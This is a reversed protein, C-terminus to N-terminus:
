DGQPFGQQMLEILALQESPAIFDDHGEIQTNNFSIRGLERTSMNQVAATNVAPIDDIGEGRAGHCEACYTAYLSLAADLTHATDDDTPVVAISPLADDNTAETPAVAIDPLSDSGSEATPVIAISQPMTPDSQPMTDTTPPAATPVQTPEVIIVPMGAAAEALAYTDALALEDESVMGLEAVRVAVDDWSAYKIITVLSEIHQRNFTGGEDLHFAAMDTNVLGRAISKYLYDWERNRLYKDDLKTADETIDGQGHSGHCEACNMAYLDTGRQIADARQATQAKEMRSSERAAAILLVTMIGITAAVGIWSLRETTM